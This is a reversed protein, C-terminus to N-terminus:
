PELGLQAERGKTTTITKLPVFIKLSQIDHLQIWGANGSLFFCPSAEQPDYSRYLCFSHLLATIFLLFQHSQAFFSASDLGDHWVQGQSILISRPRTNHTPLLTETPALPFPSFSIRESNVLGDCQEPENSVSMKFQVDKSQINVQRWVTVLYVMIETESKLITAM